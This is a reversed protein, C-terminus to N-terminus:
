QDKVSDFLCLYTCRKSKDSCVMTYSTKEFSTLMHINLFNLNSNQGKNTNSFLSLEDRLFLSMGIGYTSWWEVPLLTERARVVIKKGFDGAVNEYSNIEENIKEQVTGHYVLEEMCDLMGTLIVNPVHKQLERSIYKPLACRYLATSAGPDDLCLIFLFKSQEKLQFHAEIMQCLKGFQLRLIDNVASKKLNSFRLTEENTLTGCDFFDHGVLVKLSKDKNETLKRSCNEWLAIDKINFGLLLLTSMPILGHSSIRAIGTLLDDIANFRQNHGAAKEKSTGNGNVVNSMLTIDDDVVNDKVENCPRRPLKDFMQNDSSNVEKVKMYRIGMGHVAQSLGQSAPPEPFNQKQEVIKKVKPAEIFSQYEEPPSEFVRDADALDLILTNLNPACHLFEVIWTTVSVKSDGCPNKFELEVLNPFALVTDLPTRVHSLVYDHITLHLVQVNCIGQLLTASLEHDEDRQLSLSCINLESPDNLFCNFLEM